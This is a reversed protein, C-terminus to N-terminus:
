GYLKVELRRNIAWGVGLVVLLTVALAVVAFAAGYPFNFAELALDEIVNAIMKVKGGGILKPTPFASFTWAFIVLFGSIVGPLSLPLTVRRFTEVPGAGLIRAAREYSPDIHSLSAALLVIMVPMSYQVLAVLVGGPTFLMVLPTQILGLGLLVSNLFGNNGLVLLWSYTRVIAGTFFPVVTLVLIATRVRRSSSRALAYAIPYSAVLTLVATAFSLWITDWIAGLYIPRVVAAYNALTLGGTQLSGPIFALLSFQLVLALAATFVLLLLLVPLTFLTGVASAPAGTM